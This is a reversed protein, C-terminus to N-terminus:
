SQREQPIPTQRRRRLIVVPQGYHEGSVQELQYHKIDELQGLKSTWTGDPLQRAAHTPTGDDRAFIAVKEWGEELSADPCEVFGLWRFAEVYAQLTYDRPVDAPWYRLNWSDPEWWRSTDGAAWAICNYGADAPSTVEYRAQRLDPFLNELEHRVVSDGKTPGM